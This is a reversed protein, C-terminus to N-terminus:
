IMANSKNTISQLNNEKLYIISNGEIGLNEYGQPELMTMINQNEIPLITFAEQMNMTKLVYDTAISVLNRSKIKSKLPRFSIRCSKRDKVGNIACSDKIKGNQVIILMENFENKTKRNQAYEEKPITKRIEDIMATSTCELGNRAEFEKMMEFHTDNYPDLLFLREVSV